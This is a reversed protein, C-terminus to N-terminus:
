VLFFCRDSMRQGTSELQRHTLKDKAQVAAQDCSFPFKPEDIYALLERRREDIALMAAALDGAVGADDIGGGLFWFTSSAGAGAISASRPQEAGVCLMAPSGDKEVM